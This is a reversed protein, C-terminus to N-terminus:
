RKKIELYLKLEKIYEKRMIPLLADFIKYNQNSIKDSNNLKINYIDLLDIYNSIAEISTEKNKNQFNVLVYEINEKFYKLYLEFEEDTIKFGKILRQILTLKNFLAGDIIIIDQGESIQTLFNLELEALILSNRDQLNLANDDVLGNNFSVVKIKFSNENFFNHCIDILNSNNKKNNNFEVIFPKSTNIISKLMYLENIQAKYKENNNTKYSSLKAIDTYFVETINDFFRDLLTFLLPDVVNHVLSDYMSEYYWKQDEFDGGYNDFNIKGSKISFNKVDELNSIKDALIVAKNRSPLEKSLKIKQIKREKWPLNTDHNCSTMVLSAVDGGFLKAIDDLTYLTDEPVDHLYGAAIVADDFGASKLIEGTIMPHIIFPKDTEDKRSAGEHAKIAFTLARDSLKM